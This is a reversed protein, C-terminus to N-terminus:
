FLYAEVGSICCFQIHTKMIKRCNKISKQLELRFGLTSKCLSGWSLSLSWSYTGPKSFVGQSSSLSQLAVGPPRFKRDATAPSPRLLSSPAESVKSPHHVAKASSPLTASAAQPLSGRRAWQLGGYVPSPAALPPKAAGLSSCPLADSPKSALLFFLSAIRGRPPPSGSRRRCGGSPLARAFSTSV